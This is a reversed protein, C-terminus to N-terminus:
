FDLYLNLRFDTLLSAENVLPLAPSSDRQKLHIYSFNVSPFLVLKTNLRWEYNVGTTIAAGNYIQVPESYKEEQSSISFTRTFMSTGIGAGAKINLPIDRFPYYYCNATVTIRKNKPREASPLNDSFLDSAQIWVSPGFDIKFRENIRYGLSGSFTLGAIIKSTGCSNCTKNAFGFGTAFGAIFNKPPKRVPSWDDGKSIYQLSLLIFIGFVTIVPRKCNMEFAISSCNLLFMWVFYM